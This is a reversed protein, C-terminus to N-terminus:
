LSDELKDRTKLVIKIIKVENCKCIHKHVHTKDMELFILINLAILLKIPISNTNNKSYYYCRLM